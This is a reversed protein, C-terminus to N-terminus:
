KIAWQDGGNPWPKRKLFAKFVLERPADFERTLTLVAESNKLNENQM